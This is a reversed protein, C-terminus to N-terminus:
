YNSFSGKRTNNSKNFSNNLGSSNQDKLKEETSFLPPNNIKQENLPIIPKPLKLINFTNLSKTETTKPKEIKVNITNNVFNNNM